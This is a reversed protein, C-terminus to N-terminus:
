MQTSPKSQYLGTVRGDNIDARECGSDRSRRAANFGKIQAVSDRQYIRSNYGNDYVRKQNIGL